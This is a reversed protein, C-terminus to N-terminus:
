SRFELLDYSGARVLRRDPKGSALMPIGGAPLLHVVRPVKYGSLEARCRAVLEASTLFAGPRLAAVAVVEQGRDASATGYVVVTEVEPFREIVAEVESPSVNAGASKIMESYRGTFYIRGNELYGKDGTPYYGDRDLTEERERKYMRAMLTLGRVRLEGEDGAPVELGTVPDVIKYEFYEGPLHIGFTETMGTNLTDGRSSAPMTASPELSDLPDAEWQPDSKIREMMFRWGSIANARERRILELAETSDFREQCLITSGSYLSGILSQPGGVWFMPMTIFVRGPRSPRLGLGLAPAVKRVAAGHTHVVGKPQAASGSTWILLLEDSPHVEEEIAALLESTVDPASGAAPWLPTSWSRQAPGEIIVRRLYPMSPLFLRGAADSLGEVADEFLALSDRGLIASPAMVTDADSLRLATRLESATVTSSIMVALAGVRAAALFAVAFEPSSPYVLAVRSGKGIGLQILTRALRASRRDAEGFTLRGKPTVVYDSDRHAAVARALLCPITPRFGVDPLPRMAANFASTTV